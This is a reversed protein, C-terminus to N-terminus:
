KESSESVTRRVGFCASDVTSDCFHNCGRVAALAVSAYDLKGGQANQAEKM